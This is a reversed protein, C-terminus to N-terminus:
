AMPAQFCVCAAVTIFEVRFIRWFMSLVEGIEMSDFDWALCSWAWIMLVVLVGFEGARVEVMREM